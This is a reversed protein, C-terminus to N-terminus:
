PCAPRECAENGREPLRDTRRDSRCRPGPTSGPRDRQRDVAGHVAASALGSGLPYFAAVGSGHNAGFASGAVTPCIM